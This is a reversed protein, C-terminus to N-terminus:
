GESSGFFMGPLIVPTDPEPTPEAPVVTQCRSCKRNLFARISKCKPCKMKEWTM